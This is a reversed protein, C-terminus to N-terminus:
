TCTCQTINLNTGCKACIGKCDDKCLIRAPNSLIMEQRIEEGIDIYETTPTLEFNFDYDHSEVSHFEELCRSCFFGFDATVTTEALIMDGAKTVHAKVSIPSRLDIEEDSLGISEKPITQDVAVGKSTIDRVLVKIM